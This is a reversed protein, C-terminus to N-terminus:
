NVIPATGLQARAGGEVVLARVLGLGSSLAVASRSKNQQIVPLCASTCKLIKQEEVLARVTIVATVTINM